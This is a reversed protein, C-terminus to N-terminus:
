ENLKKLRELLEEEEPTRDTKASIYNIYRAVNAPIEAEVQVVKSRTYPEILFLFSWIDDDSPREKEIGTPVNITLIEKLLSKGYKQRVADQLCAEYVNMDGEKLIINGLMDDPFYRLLRTGDYDIHNYVKKVPIRERKPKDENYLRIADTPQNEISDMWIKTVDSLIDSYMVFDLYEAFFTLTRQDPKWRSIDSTPIYRWKGNERVFSRYITRTGRLIKKM